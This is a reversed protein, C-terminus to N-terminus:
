GEFKTEIIPQTLEPGNTFTPECVIGNQVDYDVFWVMVPASKAADSLEHYGIAWEGASGSVDFSLATWNIEEDAIEEIRNDPSTLCGPVMLMVALIVYNRIRIRPRATRNTQPQLLQNNM